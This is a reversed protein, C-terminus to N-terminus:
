FHYGHGGVRGGTKTIVPDVISVLRPQQHHHAFRAKEVVVGHSEVPVKYSVIPRDISTVFYKRPSVPTLEPEYVHELYPEAEVRDHVVPRLRAVNRSVVPVTRVMSVHDYDHAYDDVVHHVVPASVVVPASHVFEVNHHQNRRLGSWYSCSAQGVLLFFGVFAIMSISIYQCIVISQGM